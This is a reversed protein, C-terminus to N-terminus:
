LGLKRRQSRNLKYNNAIVAKRSKVYDEIAPKVVDAIFPMLQMAAETTDNDFYALVTNTGDEGLVLNLMSIIALRYKDMADITQRNIDQQAHVLELQVTRFDKAIAEPKINVHIVIPVTGNEGLLEIDEVIDKNRKIQYAM